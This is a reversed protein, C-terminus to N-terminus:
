FQRQDVAMYPHIIDLKDAGKYTIKEGAVMGVSPLYTALADEKKIAWHKAVDVDKSIAKWDEGKYGKFAKIKDEDKLDYAFYLLCEKGILDNTLYCYRNQGEVVITQSYIQFPLDLKANGEGGDIINVIAFAYRYTNM